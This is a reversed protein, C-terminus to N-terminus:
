EAADVIPEFRWSDLALAAGERGEFWRSVRAAPGAAGLAVFLPLLHEETPHARVAGPARRRYDLLAEADGALLAVHLWEAFGDVYRLAAADIRPAFADRLNHTAHGSGIVLIGERTLDALARGLEFHHAPGLAPQVSLQVVPIDAAPYMWRLPVWAGHDLGRCGDTTATMAAAQLLAAVRTALEHAPPASYRLAYLAPPFGGFDHVTASRSNSSLMPLASEWHASVMLVGRPRPLSAAFGRWAPGASGDPLAQLPSGHSLFVTPLM